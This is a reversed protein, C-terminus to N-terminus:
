PAVLQERDGEALKLQAEPGEAELIVFSEDDGGVFSLGAGSESAGIKVSPQGSANILRFLVTESVGNAAPQIGISARIRGQSDVLEFATGRLTGSVGQAAAPLAQTLGIGVLLGLNALTLVGLIMERKM